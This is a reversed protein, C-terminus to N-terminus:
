REVIESPLYEEEIVFIQDRITYWLNTIKVIDNTQKENEFLAASADDFQETVNMKQMMVSDGRIWKYSFSDIQYKGINCNFILRVKDLKESQYGLSKNFGNIILLPTDLEFVAFSITDSKIKSYIYIPYNFNRYNIMDLIPLLPTIYFSCGERRVLGQNVIVYISDCFTGEIFIKVENEVRNVLDGSSKRECKEVKYCILDQAFTSNGFSLFLLIYLTRKM